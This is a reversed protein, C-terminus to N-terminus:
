IRKSARKRKIDVKADEQINRNFVPRELTPDAADDGESGTNFELLTDGILIIDDPELPVSSNRNVIKGNVWCGNTPTLDHLVYKGGRFVILAHKRSIAEDFPLVIDCDGERGILNSGVLFFKQGQVKLTKNNLEQIASQNEALFRTSAKEEKMQQNVDIDNISVKPGGRLQMNLEWLRMLKPRNPVTQTNELHRRGIAFLQFERSSNIVAYIKLFAVYPAVHEIFEVTEKRRANKSEQHQADRNKKDQWRNKVFEIILTTLFGILGGIFLLQLDTM